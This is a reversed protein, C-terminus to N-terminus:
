GWCMIVLYWNQYNFVLFLLIQRFFLTLKFLFLFSLCFKWVFFFDRSSGSVLILANRLVSCSAIFLSISTVPFFWQNCMLTQTICSFIVWFFLKSIFNWEVKNSVSPLRHFFVRFVHGSDSLQKKAQSTCAFRFVWKKRGTALYSLIKNADRVHDTGM